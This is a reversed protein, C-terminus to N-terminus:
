WKANVLGVFAQAVLPLLLLGEAEIGELLTQEPLLARTKDGISLMFSSSANAHEIGLIEAQKVRSQAEKVATAFSEHHLQSMDFQLENLISKVSQMYPEPGCLFITREAFDPVLNRLSEADLRGTDYFIPENHWPKTTTVSELMYRLKFSRHRLAMTELSSKFIIDVETRASHLFAIDADMQSDTLYRSMSYM